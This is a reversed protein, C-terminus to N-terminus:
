PGAGKECYYGQVCMRDARWDSEIEVARFVLGALVLSVGASMFLYIAIEVIDLRNWVNQKKM